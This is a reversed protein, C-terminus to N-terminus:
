ARPKFFPVSVEEDLKQFAVEVPIGIQLSERDVDVVQTMLRVPEGQTGDLEIVSVNYLPSDPVARQDAWTYTFVTGTGPLEDWDWKMSQCAYCAFAPPWRHAGCDGCQQVVFKGKGANLWYGETMPEWGPAPLQTIRDEESM